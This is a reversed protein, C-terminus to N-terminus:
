KGQNDLYGKIIGRLVERQSESIDKGQYSRMSDIVEEVDLDKNDRTTQSESKGLLYDVSVGLVNAVAKIKDVSPNQKKWRYIANTGLKAKENVKRLSMGRKKSILKIREFMTM